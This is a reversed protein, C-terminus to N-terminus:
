PIEKGSFAPLVDIAVCEPPNCFRPLRNKDLGRSVVMASEGCQYLGGAMARSCGGSKACLPREGPRSYPGPRRTRPRVGDFDFGRARMSPFCSRGTPSCFRSFTRGGIPLVTSWSLFGPLAATFISTRPRRHRVPLDGGRGKAPFCVPGCARFCRIGADMQPRSRCAACRQEHNGTVYFVPACDRLGALLERTNEPRATDPVMDGALLIADPRARYVALLLDRQRTGYRSRHLDSLLVFHFPVHVKRSKLTYQRVTLRPWVAAAGVACVLSAAFGIKRDM